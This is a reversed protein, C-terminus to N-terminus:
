VYKLITSYFSCDAWMPLKPNKLEFILVFDYGSKKM